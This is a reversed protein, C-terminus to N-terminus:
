AQPALAALLGALEFVVGQPDFSLARASAALDRAREWLSIAEALAAGRRERAALAIAGPARDLFLEYRPQAAKGSLQRALEAARARSLDGDAALAAIAEDLAEVNLGAYGIARGPAGEGARALVARERASLEPLQAALVIEVDADSLPELRLLRCRSRITPLLRGPAHSVLFFVTGAPPEELNKLLANAGGRELDDVSDIVVARASSLAPTTAFMAGLGRVQEVSISRALGDGRERPLRALIRLDPHSGAQILRAIRHDPPIELGPLDIGPGAAEALLRAAAARALTAKGIGPAGALLWAHHMRGGRLADRLASVAAEHGVLSM